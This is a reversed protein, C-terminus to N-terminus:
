SLFFEIFLFLLHKALPYKDFGRHSIAGSSCLPCTDTNPNLQTMKTPKAIMTRVMAMSIYTRCRWWAPWLLAITASGAAETSEHAGSCRTIKKNRSPAQQFGQFVNPISSLDGM